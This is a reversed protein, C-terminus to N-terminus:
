PCPVGNSDIRTIDGTVGSWPNIAGGEGDICYKSIINGSSNVHIKWSSDVDGEHSDIDPDIRVLDFVGNYADEMTTCAGQNVQKQRYPVGPASRWYVILDDVSNYSNCVVVSAAYAQAPLTAVFSLGAISALSILAVSLRRLWNKM